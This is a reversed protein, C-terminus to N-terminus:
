GVNVIYEKFYALMTCKVTSKKSIFWFHAGQYHQEKKRKFKDAWDVGLCFVGPCCMSHPIIAIFYQTYSRRTGRFGAGKEVCWCVAGRKAYFPYALKSPGLPLLAYNPRSTSTGSKGYKGCQAGIQMKENLEPNYKLNHQLFQNLTLKLPSIYASIPGFLYPQYLFIFLISILDFTLRLKPRFGAQSGLKGVRVNIGLGLGLRLRSILGM